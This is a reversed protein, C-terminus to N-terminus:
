RAEEDGVPILGVIVGPLEAAASERILSDRLAPLSTQDADSVATHIRHLRDYLADRQKAVEMVLAAPVVEIREVEHETATQPFLGGDHLSHSGGPAYVQLGCTPCWDVFLETTEASM